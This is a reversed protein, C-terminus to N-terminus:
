SNNQIKNDKKNIFNSMDTTKYKFKEQIYNNLYIMRKYQETFDALKDDNKELLAIIENLEVQAEKISKNKIDEPINKSKM